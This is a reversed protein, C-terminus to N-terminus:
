HQGSSGYPPKPPQSYGGNMGAFSGYGDTGGDGGGQFGSPMSRRRDDNPNPPPMPRSSSYSSAGPQPPGRVPGGMSGYEFASVNPVNRSFNRGGSTDENVLSSNTSRDNRLRDPYRRFPDDDFKPAFPSSQVQHLNSGFQQNLVSGGDSLDTGSRAFQNRPPREEGGRMPRSHGGNMRSPPIYLINSEGFSVRHPMRQPINMPDSPASNTPDIGQNPVGSNARTPRVGSPEPRYQTPTARSGESTYVRGTGERATYPKRDREIPLTPSNLDDDDIANSYQSPQGYPQREREGFSNQPPRQPPPPMAAADKVEGLVHPEHNLSSVLRQEAQINSELPLLRRPLEKPFRETKDDANSIPMNMVAKALRDYEINPHAQILCTMFCAFGHPTLGPVTPQEQRNNQILHHECVLRRYMVSLSSFAVKGGFIIEWPYHEEDVKTENFFQLMKPPTVVLSCTPEYDDILHLALGRLFQGLRLTPRGDIFLPQWRKEIVTEGDNSPEEVSGVRSRSTGDYGAESTKSDKRIREREQATREVDTERRRLPSGINAPSRKRTASSSSTRVPRSMEDSRISGHSKLSDRSLHSFHSGSDSVPSPLAFGRDEGGVTYPDPTPPAFLERPSGTSDQDPSRPPPPPYITPSSQSPMPAAPVSTTVQQQTIHKLVQETVQATIMSIIEPSVQHTAPSHQFADNVVESIPRSRTVAPEARSRTSDVRDLSPGSQQSAPTPTQVAQQQSLQSDAVYEQSEEMNPFVPEQSPDMSPSRVDETM